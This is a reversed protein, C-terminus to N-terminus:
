NMWQTLLEMSLLGTQPSQQVKLHDATTSTVSRLYCPSQFEWLQRAQRQHPLLSGELEDLEEQPINPPKLHPVDDWGIMDIYKPM